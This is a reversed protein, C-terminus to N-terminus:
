VQIVEDLQTYIDDGLFEMKVPVVITIIAQNAATDHKDNGSDDRGMRLGDHTPRGQEIM